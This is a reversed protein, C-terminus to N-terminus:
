DASATAGVPLRVGVAVTAGVAVSAGIAVGLASNGDQSVSCPSPAPIRVAPPWVVRCNRGPEVNLTGGPQTLSLSSAGTYVRNGSVGAFSASYPRDLCVACFM